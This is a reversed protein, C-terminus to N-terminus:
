RQHAPYHALRCLPSCSQLVLAAGVCGMRTVPDRVCYRRQRSIRQDMQSYKLWHVYRCIQLPLKLMSGVAEPLAMGLMDWSGTYLLESPTGMPWHLRLANTLLVGLHYASHASELPGWPPSWERQAASLVSQPLPVRCTPSSQLMGKLLSHDLRLTFQHLTFPAFLQAAIQDNM